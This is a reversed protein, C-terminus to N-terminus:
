AVARTNQAITSRESSLAISERMTLIRFYSRSPRKSPSPGIADIAAFILIAAEKPITPGFADDSRSIILFM